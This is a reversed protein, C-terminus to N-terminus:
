IRMAAGVSIFISYLIGWAQPLTISQVLFVDIFVSNWILVFPISTITCIISCTIMFMFTLWIISQLTSILTPKEYPMKGSTDLSEGVKEVQEPIMDKDNKM